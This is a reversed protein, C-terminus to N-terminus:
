TVVNHPLTICVAESNEPLRLTGSKMPMEQHKPPKPSSSLLSKVTPGSSTGRLLRFFLEADMTIRWPANNRRHAVIFPKGGADAEAQSCAAALNLNQVRKVEVHLWPLAACAVDPSDPSGSFQRGRRADFGAQRLVAAFEREGRKGKRNANM